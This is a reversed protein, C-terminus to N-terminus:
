MDCVTLSNHRAALLQICSAALSEHPKSKVHKEKPVVHFQSTTSKIIAIDLDQLNCELDQFLQM